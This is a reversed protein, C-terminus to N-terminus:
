RLQHGCFLSCRDDVMGTDNELEFLVDDIESLGIVLDNGAAANEGHFHKVDEEKTRPNGQHRTRCQADDQGNNRAGIFM